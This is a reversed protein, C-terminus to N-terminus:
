EWWRQVQVNLLGRTHLGHLTRHAADRCADAYEYKDYLDQTVGVDLIVQWLLPFRDPTLLKDFEQLKLVSRNGLTTARPLDHLDIVVKRLTEPPAYNALLGVGVHSLAKDITEKRRVYIPFALFALNKCPRIDLLKWDSAADPTADNPECPSRRIARLYPEGDFPDIWGMRKYSDSPASARLTLKTVNSGVRQLMTGLARLTEKSDYQVEITQLSDPDLTKSLADLLSAIPTKVDEVLVVLDVVSSLGPVRRPDFADKSYGGCEISLVLLRPEIHSLLHMMGTLSSGSIARTCAINLRELRLPEITGSATTSPKGRARSPPNCIINELALSVLKPFLTKFEGLLKADLDTASLCLERVSTAPQDHDRMFRVFRYSDDVRPITFPLYKLAIPRLKRCTLTSPGMKGYDSFHRQWCHLQSFIM